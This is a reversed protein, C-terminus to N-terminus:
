GLLAGRCTSCVRRTETAHNSTGTGTEEGRSRKEKSAPRTHCRLFVCYTPIRFSGACHIRSYVSARLEQGRTSFPTCLIPNPPSQSAYISAYLYRLCLSYGDYSADFLNKLTTRSGSRVDSLLVLPMQILGPRQAENGLLGLCLSGQLMTPNKWQLIVILLQM